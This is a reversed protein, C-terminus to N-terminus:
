SPRCTLWVTLGPLTLGRESAALCLRNDLVLASHLWHTLRAGGQWRGVGYTGAGNQPKRRDDHVPVLRERLAAAARPLLLSAFLYGSEIVRLGANAVQEILEPRSYRRFHKLARDHETYLPQFAPVTILMRGGPALRERALQSLLAGPEAVHELVDLLLILEARYEPDSLERVFEIGPQSLERALSETLHIDQAIARRFGLAAHLAGLLYGDGAGVDLVRPSSLGLGAVIQQIANVRATEWPHRRTGAETRESLDM